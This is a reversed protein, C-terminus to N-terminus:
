PPSQSNSVGLVLPAWRAVRLLRPPLLLDRPCLILAYLIMRRDPTGDPETVYRGSLGTPVCSLHSFTGCRGRGLAVTHVAGCLCSIRGHEKRPARSSGYRSSPFPDSRATHHRAARPNPSVELYWELLLFAPQPGDNVHLGGM